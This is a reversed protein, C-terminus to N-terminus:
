RKAVNVVIGVALAVGVLIGVGKAVRILDGLPDQPEPRSGTDQENQIEKPALSPFGFTRADLFPSKGEPVNFIVFLRTPSSGGSLVSELPTETNDVSTTEVVVGGGMDTVWASFDRINESGIVNMWYRGPPIPSVKRQLTM